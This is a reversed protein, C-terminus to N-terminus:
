PGAENLRAENRTLVRVFYGQEKFAKVVFKGLYGTAGAVLVSKLENEPM